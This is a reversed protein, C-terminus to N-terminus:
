LYIDCCCDHLDYEVPNIVYFYFFVQVYLDLNDFLFNIKKKKFIAM